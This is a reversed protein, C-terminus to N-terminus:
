SGICGGSAYSAGSSTRRLRLLVQSHPGRHGAEGEVLRKLGKVESSDRDGEAELGTLLADAREERRRRTPILLLACGLMGLPRQM